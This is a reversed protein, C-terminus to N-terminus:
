PKTLLKRWIVLHGLAAAPVLVGPLWIFPPYAVWTNMQDYGFAHALPTAAIAICIVVLLLATGLLNWSWLLWRPAEGRYALWGVVAAWIGSLIDFNYGSYSMVEPMVGSRAARHMVLELPLRFVQLGILAAFPLRALAPGFRRSAYIVGGFVFVMMAMFPPPRQEWEQLVGNAALVLEFLMMTLIGWSAPRWWAPNAAKFLRM